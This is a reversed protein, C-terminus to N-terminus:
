SKAFWLEFHNYRVRTCLRPDLPVMIPPPDVTRKVDNSVRSLADDSVRARCYRVSNNQPLKEDPIHEIGPMVYGADSLSQKAVKAMALSGAGTQIYIRAPLDPTDLSAALASNSSADVQTSSTAPTAKGPAQDIIQAIAAAAVGGSSVASDVAAKIQAVTTPAAGNSQALGDLLIFAVRVNAKDESLLMPSLKLIMETDARAREAREKAAIESRHIYSQLWSGASLVATALVTTLLWFGVKTEAFGALRGVVGRSRTSASLENRVHDRFIEEERLRTKEEESLPM